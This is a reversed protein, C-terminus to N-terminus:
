AAKPPVEGSGANQARILQRAPERLAPLKAGFVAAGLICMAGGAAVTTPAGIRDALAGALLAGMPAMGMFMMSYVAMVRGRLADPVMRQVLTNSGGMQIMMSFGVPVLLAASLWFSRSLSFLILSGGFGACALTIWRGLGKLDRRAALTLAGLVAGAGSAGMLIGLGRAGGDLIKAAFIPMLVAYPVATLSVVGLLLLIGLIPATRGVFRFGEVIDAVASARRAAPKHPTVRMLALGALVALFSIGNAFFCYGEGIAGVLVGAIAPGVVRAGNFMSSNLAIANVLDDKGVMEVVFSQRAPIDFASVTGLLASLVFLHAVRVLGTLTLAALAFALVMSATQTVLLIRHRSNRDAVAGGIPAFLFVPIQGSFGILGLLLSSGTLRYVLWSQAVSQMWTGILSILQGGFFLQYNRHRFARLLSPVPRPSPTSAGPTSAGTTPPPEPRDM